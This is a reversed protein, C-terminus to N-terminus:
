SNHFNSSFPFKVSSAGAHLCPWSYRFWEQCINAESLRVLRRQQYQNYPNRNRYMFCKILSFLYCYHTVLDSKTSWSCHTHVLRREPGMGTRVSLSLLSLLFFFLCGGLLGRKKRKEAYKEEASEANAFVQIQAIQSQSRLSCSVTIEEANADMLATNVHKYIWLMKTGYFFGWWVCVCGLVGKFVPDVLFSWCRWSFSSEGKMTDKEM